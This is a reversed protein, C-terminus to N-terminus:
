ITSVAHKAEELQILIDIFHKAKQLDSIGGKDKWRSVYKIVSGECYGINNAHIYEVPQIKLAKYHSGDVQVDLPKPDFLEHQQALADLLKEKM